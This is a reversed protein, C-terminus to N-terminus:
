SFYPSYAPFLIDYDVCSDFNSLQCPNFLSNSTMSIICQPSRTHFNGNQSFAYISVKRIPCTRHLNVLLLTARLLAEAFNDTYIEKTKM